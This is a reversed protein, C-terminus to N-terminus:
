SLEIVTLNDIIIQRDLEVTNARLSTSGSVGTRDKCRLLVFTPWRTSSAVSLTAEINTRSHRMKGTRLGYLNIRVAVDILSLIRPKLYPPSGKRLVGAEEGCYRRAPKV